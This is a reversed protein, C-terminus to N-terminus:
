SVRRERGAWYPERLLTKLVKGPGSKPLPEDRLEIERPVKFGAVHERCHDLLADVTVAERTTVVAHVAEGWRDDPVAFVAAEAVAPHRLLVAEVELSYVNEGGTIIMDKARDVLYLYGHEDARVIDGSRYWGDVLAEATADPRKWYGLMINPGRIWLEGPEGEPGRVEAEVGPVPTGVSALRRGGRRHDEPTLHTVTPAAETMGYFQAVDCDPLRELVRRQLEASIPSAAYQVHRLSSLDATGAGPADLLMALMTPVLVTHTIREREIAELVTAADFRPLVVQEAGVWTCALLNAIGAVHFMPCVHLWRQDPRHGTAALNHQANALLNGHSLMVGKPRGTTGGTYSIAALTDPPLDRRARPRGTLLEEWEILPCGLARGLDHHEPDTILGSLEADEVIFRLEEPALRYNLSVLVGGAAPVGLWAETHARTNAALVGIRAGPAVALSSLRAALERYTVSFATRDGHLSEARRLPWGLDSM